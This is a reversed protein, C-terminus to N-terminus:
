NIWGFGRLTKAAETALVRHGGTTPHVGDAFQWTDVDAGERIGNFFDGVTSSCFLSSGTKVIGGTVVEIKAADCAPVKNNTLGYKTPNLYVDKFSANADVLQVPQNTLGERLWLNFTDVLTTLVQRSSVSQMQGFPTLSSDPLNWVAVYKGGKALIQGKVLNALETAAKKMEGQAETQADLLRKNAVDLSIRGAAADAQIAAAKIGLVEAQFFVDNNGGFVVILDSAKFSGFIALHNAVQTVMPVTLAGDGKGIGNPDVVRAGGQAWGTCTSASAPNAAAPCKVSQGAFGMEGPTVPKLGLIRALAEVWVESAASNNTFKGGFYSLPDRPDSNPRLTAPTYAGVDSLSDGFSVLTTFTGKTTPAGATTGTGPVTPEGGGCAAILLAVLPAWARTRPMKM